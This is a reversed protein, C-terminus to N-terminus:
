DNEKVKEKEHSYKSNIIPKIYSACDKPFYAKALDNRLVKLFEPYISTHGLESELGARDPFYKYEDIYEPRMKMPPYIGGQLKSM